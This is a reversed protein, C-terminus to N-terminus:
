AFKNRKISGILSIEISCLNDIKKQCFPQSLLGKKDNKVATLLQWSDITM